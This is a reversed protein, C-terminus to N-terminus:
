KKPPPTNETLKKTIRMWKALYWLGGQSAPRTEETYEFIEVECWVRKEGNALEIKLHPAIPSSLHPAEPKLCCHWGPRFAFGNRRHAQAKYLMGIWLTSGRDIFLPSLTGDKRERLLKYAKM